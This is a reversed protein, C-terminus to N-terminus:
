KFTIMRPSPHHISDKLQIISLIILGISALNMGIVIITGLTDNAKVICVISVTEMFVGGLLMIIGLLACSTNTSINKM